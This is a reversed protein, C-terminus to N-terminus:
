AQAGELLRAADAAIIEFSDAITAYCQLDYEQAVALKVEIAAVDPAPVAVLAVAADHEPDYFRQGHRELTDDEVANLLKLRASGEPDRRVRNLCGFEDVLKRRETQAKEVARYQAGLKEDAKRLAALIRLRTHAADWAERMSAATSDANLAM